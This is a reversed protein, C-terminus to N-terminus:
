ASVEAKGEGRNRREIVDELTRIRLAYAGASGNPGEWGNRGHRFLPRESRRLAQREAEVQEPDAYYDSGNLRRLTDLHEKLLMREGELQGLSASEWQEYDIGALDNDLTPKEPIVARDLRIGKAKADQYYQMEEDSATGSDRIAKNMAEFLRNSLDYTKTEGDAKAIEIVVERMRRHHEVARKAAELRAVERRQDYYTSEDYGAVKPDSIIKDKLTNIRQQLDAAEMSDDNAQRSWREVMEAIDSASQLERAVDHVAEQMLSSNESADVSKSYLEQYEGQTFEREPTPEGEAPSAQEYRNHAM